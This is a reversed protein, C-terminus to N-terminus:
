LAQNMDAQVLADCKTGDTFLRMLPWPHYTDKISLCSEKIAYELSKGKALKKYLVGAFSTAGKDSVPLGWSLVFPVGKNVMQYAFSEVGINKDSKGTGCGSLFLMKPCSDKIANYLREPTVKDLKGIEDEMYFIPGLDKDHGAHGSIHLIDTGKVFCKMGYGVM